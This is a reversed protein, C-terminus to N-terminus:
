NKVLKSVGSRGEEDKLEMLYVGAPWNGSEFEKLRIGKKIDDVLLLRGYVDFIKIQYNSTSPENFLLNVQKNFPNPFLRFPIQDSPNFTSNTCSPRNVVIRESEQCCTGGFIDKISLEFEFWDFPFPFDPYALLVTFNREENFTLEPDIGTVGGIVSIGQTSIVNLQAADFMPQSSTNKITFTLEYLMNATDCEIKVNSAELCKNEVIPECNYLLTDSCYITEREWLTDIAYWNIVLEQPKQADEGIGDLCFQIANDWEGLPVFESTPEWVAYSPFLLNFNWNQPDGTQMSGFQVGPTILQMDIKTFFNPLCDNTIDLQHCCSDEIGWNESVIKTGECPLCCPEIFYCFQQAETCCSQGDAGELSATFCIETVEFIPDATLIKICVDESTEGSLLPTGFSYILNENAFVAPIFCETLFVDSTESSLVLASADSMSENAIQFNFEYENYSAELCEIPDLLVLDLCDVSDDIQCETTLTDTCVVRSKKGPQGSLWKVVIEQEEAAMGSTAALCFSVTNLSWGSPITGSEHVISLQNDSITSYYFDGIWQNGNFVWDETVLELWVATISLGLDNQLGVGYCCEGAAIPSLTAELQDCCSAELPSCSCNYKGIFIDPKEGANLFDTNDPSPDDDLSTSSHFGVLILNNEEDCAISNLQDGGSVGYPNFAAMFEMDPSYKAFFGDVSYSNLIYEENSDPDVDLSNGARHFSGTITPNGGKDVVVDLTKGNTTLNFAWQCHGNEGDYKALFGELNLSSHSLLINTGGLPDFDLNEGGGIQGTVYVQGNDVDLGYPEVAGGSVGGVNTLWILKGEQDYKALYFNECELCNSINKPNNSDLPNFDVEGGFSGGVYLTGTEDFKLCRTDNKGTWQDSPLGFSFLHEGDTNFKAVFGAWLGPDPLEGGGFNITRWSYAGAIGITGDPGIDLDLLKDNVTGGFSKGWLLNFNPDYKAIFIDASCINAGTCSGVNSNTLAVTNNDASPLIITQSKFWGGIYINGEQDVKIEPAMDEFAGGLSEAWLVEGEENYKAFFGDTLGESSLSFSGFEALDIFGGSVYVDTGHTAVGFRKHQYRADTFDGVGATWVKEFEPKECGECEVCITFCTDKQNCIGSNSDKQILSLCIEYDGSQPFSHELCETDTVEQTFGDGWNIQVQDCTDRPFSYCLLADCENTTLSHTGQNFKECFTLSDQCCPSCVKVTIDFFCPIGANGFQDIPTCMVSTTGEPFIDGSQHSYSFIIDESATCNDIATLSNFDVVAGGLSPDCPVVQSLPCDIIIPPTVDSVSISLQCNDIFVGGEGFLNFQVITNQTIPTGPPPTQSLIYNNINIFNILNSPIPIEDFGDSAHNVGWMWITQNEKIGFSTYPGGVIKDWDTDVGIQLPALEMITTGNGLQYFENKGWSWLTGNSKLALCHFRGSQIAKWNNDTGILIPNIEQVISNNGLEGDSNDGWAWLTGDTKIAHSFDAGASVVNWNADLGVQVPSSQSSLTGIGLEGNQNRGWSWLTGDNKIALTHLGDKSVSVFNWENNGIQIRSFHDTTTGDGIQGQNNEGWLWLTGNEKLAASHTLGADIYAWNTESSLQVPSNRNINTGDGLHGLNNRGWGWLTGDNKLALNHMGGVTIEKWDSETGVQVPSYSTNFNGIGLQGYQNAGWSWLTGDSRLALTHFLGADISKWQFYCGEIIEVDGTLDSIIAQCNDDLNLIQNEPCIISTLSLDIEVEQCYTDTCNGSSATVCVNFVGEFPFTHNEQNSGSLITGDGFDWEFTMGFSFGEAIVGFSQDVSCQEVWPGFDNSVPDFSTISCPISCGVLPSELDFLVHMSDKGGTAGYSEGQCPSNSYANIGPAGPWNQINVTSPITNGSFWVAGTGGGGGPGFCASFTTNPSGGDGGAAQIIMSPTNWSGVDLLITGGGGGGGGGDGRNNQTTSPSDFGNAIIHNNGNSSISSAKIFIIGGGAGGISGYGDNINGCGGGGGLFIKNQTNSYALGSGGLGGIDDSSCLSFNAQFGGKGGSTFNGGGGGGSNHKNGGGGGNALAGRGANKGNIMSVIGEGKEAGFGSNLDYYYDSYGGGCTGNPNFDQKGGRFGIGGAEIYNELVLPGSFMALVGGTEGNWAQATLPNIVTPNPYFPVSILQVAHDPDYTRQIPCSLYVKDTTISNVIHFEYNGADNYDIITGFSSDNSEIIEAGKMQILLVIQGPEFSSTSNVTVSQYYVEMVKQYSNVVGSIDQSQTLNLFCFTLLVLLSTKKM